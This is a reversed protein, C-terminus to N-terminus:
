KLFFKQPLGEFGWKEIHAISLSNEWMLNSLDTFIQLICLKGDRFQIEVEVNIM